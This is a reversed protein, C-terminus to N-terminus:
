QVERESFRHYVTGDLCLDEINPMKLMSSWSEYFAKDYSYIDSIHVPQSCIQRIITRDLCCNIPM